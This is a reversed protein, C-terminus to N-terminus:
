NGFSLCNGEPTGPLHLCIQGPQCPIILEMSLFDDPNAKKCTCATQMLLPNVTCNSGPACVGDGGVGADCTGDTYFCQGTQVNCEMTMPDACDNASNCGPACRGGQAMDCMSGRQCSVGSCPSSDCQFTEANCVARPPCDTDDLCQVCNGQLCIPRGGCSACQADNNCDCPQSDGCTNTEPDCFSGLPCPADNSCEGCMGTEAICAGTPPECAGACADCRNSTPACSGNQCSYADPCDQNGSCNALCFSGNSVEKCTHNEACSEDGTCSQCAQRPTVCQGSGVDCVLGTDCERGPCVTCDYNVPVCQGLQELCTFGAQCEALGEGCATTCFSGTNGIPTCQAGEGLSACDRDANCSQCLGLYEVGMDAPNGMGQDGVPSSADSLVLMDQPPPAEETGCSWRHPGSDFCIKGDPCSGEADGCEKPSCTRTDQLCTRGSGPCDGLGNCPEAVCVGDEAVCIYGRMCDQDRSCTNSDSSDCAWLGMVGAALLGIRLLNCLPNKMYEGPECCVRLPQLGKNLLFVPAPSYTVQRCLLLRWPQYIVSILAGRISLM